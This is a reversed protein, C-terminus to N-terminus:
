IRSALELGRQTGWETLQLHGKEKYTERVSAALRYAGDQPSLQDLSDLVIVLDTNEKKLVKSADSLSKSFMQLLNNYNQIQHLKPVPLSCAETIQM